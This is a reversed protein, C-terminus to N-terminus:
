KFSVFFLVFLIIIGICSLITSYIINSIIANIITAALIKVLGVVTLGLAHTIWVSGFPKKILEITEDFDVNIETGLEQM